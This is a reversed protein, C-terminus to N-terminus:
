ESSDSIVYILRGCERCTIVNGTNMRVLDQSTVSNNCAECFKSEVAALAGSRRALKLRQYTVLHQGWDIRAEAETVRKEIEHLESQLGAESDRVEARVAALAQESAKVAVELDKIKKQAADATDLAAIAQDEIALKEAKGTETQSKVIAYEKNSAAQNLVGQLKLLESEKSRLRLNIEDAAKKLNRIATKQAEVADKAAQLQREAVTIRRPGDALTKEVAELKRLLLHLEALSASLASPM